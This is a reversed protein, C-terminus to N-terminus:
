LTPFFCGFRLTAQLQSFFPTNQPTNLGLVYNTVHFGCLLNPFRAYRKQVGKPTGEVVNFFPIFNNFLKYPTKIRKRFPFRLKVM